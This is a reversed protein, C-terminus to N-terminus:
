FIPCFALLSAGSVIHDAIMQTDEDAKQEFILIGRNGHKTKFSRWAHNKLPLLKAINEVEKEVWPYIGNFGKQKWYTTNYNLSRVNEKGYKPM